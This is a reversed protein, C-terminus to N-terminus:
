FGGGKSHLWIIVGKRFENIEVLWSFPNSKWGITSGKYGYEKELTYDRKYSDRM